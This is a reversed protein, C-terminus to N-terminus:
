HLIGKIRLAFYTLHKPLYQSSNMSNDKKWSRRLVPPPACFAKFLSSARRFLSMRSVLIAITITPMKMVHWKGLNMGFKPSINMFFRGSTFLHRRKWQCSWLDDLKIRTFRSCEFCHILDSQIQLSSERRFAVEVPLYDFNHISLIVCNLDINM